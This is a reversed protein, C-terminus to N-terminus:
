SHQTYSTRRADFYMTDATPPMYFNMASPNLVGHQFGSNQHLTFAPFPQLNGDLIPSIAFNNDYPMMMDLDPPIMQNNIYQTNDIQNTAGLNQDFGVSQQPQLHSISPKHVGVVQGIGPVVAQQANVPVVSPLDVHMTEAEPAQHQPQERSNAANLTEGNKNEEVANDGFGGPFTGLVDQDVTLLKQLTESTQINQKPQLGGIERWTNIEAVVQQNEALLAKIEDAATIWAQRQSQLYQVSEHVIMSKSLRRNPALAPIM